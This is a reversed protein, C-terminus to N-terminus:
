FDFEGVVVSSGAALEIRKRGKGAEFVKVLGLVELKLLERYLEKETIDKFRKQLESFLEDDTM